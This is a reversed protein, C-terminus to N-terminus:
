HLPNCGGWYRRTPVAIGDAGAYSTAGSPVAIHVVCGRPDGSVDATFGQPLLSKLRYEAYCQPCLKDRGAKHLRPSVPDADSSTAAQRYAKQMDPPLDAVAVVSFSEPRWASVCCPCTSSIGRGNDAPYDGNCAAVSLRQLTNSLRFLSGLHQEPFGEATLQRATQERETMYGM